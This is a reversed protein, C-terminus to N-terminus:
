YQNDKLLFDRKYVSGFKATTHRARAQYKKEGCLHGPIITKNRQNTTNSLGLQFPIFFTKKVPFHQKYSNALFCYPIM